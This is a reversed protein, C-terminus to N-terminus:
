HKILIDHFSLTRSLGGILNKDNEIMYLIWEVTNGVSDGDLCDVFCHKIRDGLEFRKVIEDRTARTDRKQYKTKEIFLDYKTFLLFITREPFQDKIRLLLDHADDL